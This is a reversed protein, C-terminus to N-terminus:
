QPSRAVIIDVITGPAALTGAGPKQAIVTGPAADGTRRRTVSGLTLGELELRTRADAQTLGLLDPVSITPAGISVVLRLSSGAPLPTGPAPRTLMAIGPAVAAQVSEVDAVVLGVAAILRRALGSDLGAVDPIPIKPPGASSVLTVRGGAQAAVAPPPDQWIVTGGPATPHTETGGDQPVLGARQIEQRAQPLTMGLVRPVTQRSPLVPAPFILLAAVLYGALLAIAAAIGWSVLTTRPLTPLRFHWDRLPPLRRPFEM